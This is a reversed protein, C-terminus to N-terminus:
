PCWHMTDWCGIGESNEEAEEEIGEEEKVQESVDQVEEPGQVSSEEVVGASSLAEEAVPKVPARSEADKNKLGADSIVGKSEVKSGPAEVKEKEAMADYVQKRLEERTEETGSQCDMSQNLM